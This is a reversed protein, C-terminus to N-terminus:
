CAMRPAPTAAGRPAPDIAYLAGSSTIFDACGPYDTDDEFYAIVFLDYAASKAEEFSAFSAFVIKRFTAGCRASLHFM